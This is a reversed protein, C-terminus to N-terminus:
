VPKWLKMARIGDSCIAPSGGAFYSGQRHQLEQLSVGPIYLLKPAARLLDQVRDRRVGKWLATWAAFDQALGAARLALVPGCSGTGGSDASPALASRDPNWQQAQPFV